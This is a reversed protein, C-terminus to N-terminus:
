YTKNYNNALIVLDALDVKDNVNIDANPNWKPEGPKSGYANALLVLDSLSIKSDGNLDAGDDIYKFSGDPNTFVAYTHNMGLKIGKNIKVTNKYDSAINVLELSYTGNGTGYVEVTYNGLPSRVKVLNQDPVYESNPIENFITGNFYGTRNGQSDRFCVKMPCKGQGSMTKEYYIKETTYSNAINYTGPVIVLNHFDVNYATLAEKYYLMLRPMDLSIQEQFEDYIAKRSAVDTTNLGVDLLNDAVTSNYSVFNYMSSPSHWLDWQNPDISVQFSGVYLDFNHQFMVEDLIEPISEVQLTADIGVNVLDDRIM